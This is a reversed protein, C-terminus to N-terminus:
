LHLSVLDPALLLMEFIATTHLLNPDLSFYSEFQNSIRDQLAVMNSTTSQNNSAAVMFPFLGTKPDPKRFSEPPVAAIIKQLNSLTLDSHQAVLVLTDPIKLKAADPYANLLIPLVQNKVKISQCSDLVIHLPYRGQEDRERAQWPYLALATEVIDAAFKCDTVLAAHLVCFSTAENIGLSV